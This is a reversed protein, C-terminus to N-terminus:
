KSPTLARFRECFDHADEYRFGAVVYTRLYYEMVADPMVKAGEYRFCPHQPYGPKARTKAIRATGDRVMGVCAEFIEAAEPAVGHEPDASSFYMGNRPKYENEGMVIM